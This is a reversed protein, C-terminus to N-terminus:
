IILNLFKIKQHGNNIRILLLLGLIGECVIFILFLFFNMIKMYIYNYIYYFNHSYIGNQNFIKFLLFNKNINNFWYYIYCFYYYNIRKYYM